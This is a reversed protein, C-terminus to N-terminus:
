RFVFPGNDSPLTQHVSSSRLTNVRKAICLIFDLLSLLFVDLLSQAVPLRQSLATVLCSSLEHDRPQCSRRTLTSTHSPIAVRLTLSTVTGSFLPWAVRPFRAFGPAATFRRGNAKAQNRRKEQGVLGYRPHQRLIPTARTHRTRRPASDACARRARHPRWLQTLHRSAGAFLEHGNQGSGTRTAHRMLIIM